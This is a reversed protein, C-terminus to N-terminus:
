LVSEHFQGVLIISTGWYCATGRRHHNLGALKLLPHIKDRSVGTALEIEEIRAKPVKQFFEKLTEADDGIQNSGTV